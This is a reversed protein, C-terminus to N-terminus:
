LRFGVVSVDDRRREDGQHDKLARHLEEKDGAMQAGQTSLLLERLRNKGFMRHREGGIQDVFGDCRNIRTKPGTTRAVGPRM